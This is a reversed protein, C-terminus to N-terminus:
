PSPPATLTTLLQALAQVLTDDDDPDVTRLDLLLLGEALRGIVAPRGARLLGAARDPSPLDLAVGFSPLVDGPLSGGGVTSELPVASAAAHGLRDCLAVARARLDEPPMAIMRWIPIESVARGSRYLGLTAGLAALVTKDPRTARALPDRRMRM